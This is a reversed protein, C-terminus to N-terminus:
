RGMADRTSQMNRMQNDPAGMMKDKGGKGGKDGADKMM